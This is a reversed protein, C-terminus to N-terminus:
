VDPLGKFSPHAKGKGQGWGRLGSVGLKLEHKQSESREDDERRSQRGWLSRAETTWGRLQM